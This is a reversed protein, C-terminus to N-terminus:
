GNPFCIFELSFGRLTPTLRRDASSNLIARVEMFPAQSIAADRGAMVFMASVSPIPPLTTPTVNFLVPAATAAEAATRGGRFEFTISTGEPVTADWGFEQYIPNETLPDCIVSPTAADETRTTDYLRTYTGGTGYEFYDCFGAASASYVRPTLRRDTTEMRIEMELYRGNPVPGPALSLNAPSTRFPGIWPATSLGAVSNSSRVFVEVSTGTPIDANWEAREWRQDCGPGADNIFSYRGRPNAFVNLGYGIFDSYTYPGSFVSPSEVWTSRDASLRAGRAGGSGILWVANDFTVGVGMFASATPARWQQQNALNTDWRVLDRSAGQDLAAYVNGNIDAAMGRPRGPASGSIWSNTRVDYRAVRWADLLATFFFERSGDANIYYTMGYGSSGYPQVATWTYTGTSPTVYGMQYGGGYNISYFFIRGRTDAAAGYPHINRGGASLAVSGLLVGDSPRFRYARAENYNGVWVDGVDASGTAVGIALSRPVGNNGGVPVTYLICEDNVGFFETPDSQQIRGDGNRDVSTDIRGNANRDVCRRPDAAIKTLTGQRGFARNAIYCDFNQDVATRSPCNGTNSWNCYESGPRANNVADPRASYYRGIENGTAPDLRSITGDNMNSVWVGPSNLGLVGLVLAGDVPDVTVGDSNVSNPMWPNGTGAGIETELGCSLDSCEILMGPNEAGARGVGPNFVLGNSGREMVDRGRITDVGRFCRPECSACQVPDDSAAAIVVDQGDDRTLRHVDECGSWVGARCTMEGVLCVRAGNEVLADPWCEETRGEVACGCGEIPLACMTAAADPQPGADDTTPARGSCAGTLSALVVLAQTPLLSWWSSSRPRRIARM